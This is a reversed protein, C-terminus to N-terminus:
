NVAAKTQVKQRYMQEDAQEFLVQSTNGNLPFISLGISCSVQLDKNAITIPLAVKARIEDSMLNLEASEDLDELLIGFEDGGLRGILDGGRVMTSLREAVTRLVLDGARHGHQDNVPKFDDLDLLMLAMQKANRKHRALAREFEKEFHHKYALQTLGDHNAAFQLKIEHAKRTISHRITRSLTQTNLENKNIFDTAGLELALMDVAPNDNGTVIVVPRPLALDKARRLLDMGSDGAIDLDVFYLDFSTDSLADAGAVFTNFAEVEYQYHSDKGLQRRIAFCDDPSDDIVAIKYHTM